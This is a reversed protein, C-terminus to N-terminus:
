YDDFKTKKFSHILHTILLSFRHHHIKDFNRGSFTILYIVM